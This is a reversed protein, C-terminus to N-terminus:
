WMPAREEKRPDIKKRYFSKRVSNAQRRSPLRKEGWQGLALFSLM